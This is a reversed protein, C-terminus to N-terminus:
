NIAEAKLERVMELLEDKETPRGGLSDCRSELDLVLCEINKLINHLSDVPYEYISADPGTAQGLGRKVADRVGILKM